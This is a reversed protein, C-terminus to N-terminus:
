TLDACQTAEPSNAVHPEWHVDSFTADFVGTTYILFPTNVSSSDLGKDTFCSLPITVTTRQGPPLGRFLKTAEVEAACPYVCHVAVKVLSRPPKHVVADFVLGGDAEVYAQKDETDTPNQLYVQSPTGGAWMVRLGGRGDPKARISTQRAGEAIDVGAWDDSSAIFSTYPPVPGDDGYVQM